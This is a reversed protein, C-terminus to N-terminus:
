VPLPALRDLLAQTRGGVRRDIVRRLDAPLDVDQRLTPLDLDLRRHGVAQHAAASGPGFRPEVEGPGVTLLTTGTGEADPVVCREPGAETLAASLEEPDLGPLDGLLVAVPAGPAEIRARDVGAVVARDLAAWGTDGVQAAPEPLVGARPLRAAAQAVPGDGTVVLVRAVLPCDSVAEITDLAMARVLAARAGPELVEALRTKGRRADKVPVVLVWRRSM